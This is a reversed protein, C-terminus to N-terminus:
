IVRKTIEVWENQAEGGVRLFEAFFIDSSVVGWSRPFKNWGDVLYKGVIGDAEDEYGAVFTGKEEDEAEIPIVEFVFEEKIDALNDDTILKARM